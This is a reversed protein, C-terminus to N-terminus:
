KTYKRNANVRKRYRRNKEYGFEEQMERVTVCLFRIPDYELVACFTIIEKVNYIADHKGNEMLSIRVRGCNLREALEEQSVQRYVRLLYLKKGFKDLDKMRREEKINHTFFGIVLM